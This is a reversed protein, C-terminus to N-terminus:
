YLNKRTRDIINHWLNSLRHLLLGIIFWDVIPNIIVLDILILGVFTGIWVSLCYGCDLLSHIFNFVKKDRRNFFWERIPSFIESKSIIEVLSETLVIAIIFIIANSM